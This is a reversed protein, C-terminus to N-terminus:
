SKDLYPLYYAPKHIYIFIAVVLSLSNNVFLFLLKLLLNLNSDIIIDLKVALKVDYNSESHTFPGCTFVM